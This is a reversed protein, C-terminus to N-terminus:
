TSTLEDAFQGTLLKSTEMKAFEPRKTTNKVTYIRVTILGEM